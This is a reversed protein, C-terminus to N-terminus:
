QRGFLDAAWGANARRALHAFGPFALQDAENYGSTVLATPNSPIALRGLTALDINALVIEATPLEDFAADLVRYGERVDAGCAAAHRLLVEDFEARPVQWTQPEPVEPSTAFDAFREITGDATQFTAGWKQPFGQRRVLDRAGIKELADNVSALLSEGVHFRPFHDREYLNVRYGKDALLTSVTSGAPGGGIVIVDPSDTM